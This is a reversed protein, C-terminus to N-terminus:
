RDRRFNRALLGALVLDEPTTVKINESSSPVLKVARGCAELLGAEDTAQYGTKQAWAHSSRLWLTRAAQPTQAARLEARPLSVVKKGKLWKISDKVESAAIGSGHALASSVCDSVLGAKLFPRASDHVLTVPWRGALADLGCRVSDQRTAGGAVVKVGRGAGKVRAAMEALDHPHATLVIEGIEPATLLTQLAWTFLPKGQLKVLGKRVRSKLRSGTGAALLIAGACPKM